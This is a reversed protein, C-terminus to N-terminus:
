PWSIARRQGRCGRDRGASKLKTLACQVERTLACVQVGMAILEELLADAEEFERSLKAELRRRLLEDIDSQESESLVAEDDEARVYDHGAPGFDKDRSVRRGNRDVDQRSDQRSTGADYKSSGDDVWWTKQRDDVIVNFQDRLQDRIADAGSFDRTRRLEDRGELLTEIQGATESDADADNSDKEYGRPNTKEYGRPKRGASPDGQGDDVWWSKERDDVIVNYDFRLEDRVTDAGDYDRLRRLEDRKALLAEIASADVDGTSGLRTYEVQDRSGRDGRRGRDAGRGTRAGSGDDVWWMKERDDIIVKFRTRLEERIADAGEYDRSQRLEDREELLGEIIPTDEASAGNAMLAIQARRPAVGGMRLHGASIRTAPLLLAGGCAAAGLLLTLRM